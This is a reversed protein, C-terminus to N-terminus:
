VRKLEKELEIIDNVDKRLVALPVNAHNHQIFMLATGEIIEKYSEYSNGSYNRYGHPLQGALPIQGSM